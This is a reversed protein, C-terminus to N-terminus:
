NFKNEIMQLLQQCAEAETDWNYKEGIEDFRKKSEELSDIADLMEINDNYVQLDGDFLENLFFFKENIGIASKISVLKKKHLKDAITEQAADAEDPTENFLDFVDGAKVEEPIDKHETIPEDDQKDNNEGEHKEQLIEDPEDPSFEMFLDEKEPPIIEESDIEVDERNTEATHIDEDIELPMKELTNGIDTDKETSVSSDEEEENGPKLGLVVEYMKKLKDLSIDIELQSLNQITKENLAEHLEETLLNLQHLRKKNTM